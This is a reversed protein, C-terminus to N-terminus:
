RGLVLEDLDVRPHGATANVVIRVTRPAATSWSMSWVVRQDQLSSTQLDVTAVKVGNVYVSASGRDPATRAVWALMRATSDITASASKQSSAKAAGSWFKPSTVTTWTGTYDIASDGESVRSVRSTTLEVWTGTNGAKDVARVRFGYSHNPTLARSWTPSTLPTTADTWAGGDVAQQVEYRAVGSAADTGTWALRATIRGDTIASGALFTRTLATVTPRTRDVIWTRTAPTRDALGSARRARVQIQFTGSGPSTFTHPSTCTTWAASSGLRCQYTLSPDSGSFSSAVSTSNTYLTTSSMTTTPRPAPSVKLSYTASSAGDSPQAPVFRARFPSTGLPRVVAVDLTTTTASVPASALVAHTTDDLISLTGGNPASAAKLTARLTTSDGVMTGDDTTPGLSLTTANTVAAYTATFILGSRGTVDHSAAGGDSWGAFAYTVGGKVQTSPASVTNVSGDIVTRSFPATQSASDVSLSLGTPATTFQLSVTRPELSRTVSASMGDSDTATLTLELHSPYEHDPPAFSGSDVGDFTEIIHTHCNSPCHKLVLTWTLQADALPGDEYRQGLRQVLDARDGVGWTTGVAPANIVPVPPTHPVGVTITQTATGVHGGPDEVELRVTVSGGAPYDFTPKAITSDDAQGDGDLDWRYLLAKGEPDVSGSGDFVVHLPAPGSTPTAM